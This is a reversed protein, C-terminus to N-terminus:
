IKPEKVDRKFQADLIDKWLFSDTKKRMGGIGKTTKNVQPEIKGKKFPPSFVGKQRNTNIKEQIIQENISSNCIAWLNGETGKAKLDDVCRHLKEPL